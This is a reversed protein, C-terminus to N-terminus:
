RFCPTRSSLGTSARVDPITLPGGFVMAALRGNGIPLAENWAGALHDYWLEPGPGAATQSFVPAASLFFICLTLVVNKM